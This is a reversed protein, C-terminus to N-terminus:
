AAKRADQGLAARYAKETDEACREWTFRAAREVGGACLGARWDDDEIVRRMADRWGELDDPDILHAQGAAVEAVAGATSAIVAGGCAMMEVTPMGFGEYRTPFVLARAGNYVAAVDEEAVYGAHIVGRSRATGELYARVDASKWGWGGVLVLPCRERVGAPLDGYARMLAMLNKRPEVTGVHLLYRPPLGLAKLREAVAQRGLPVFAPRAGMYTRTVRHAAIGLTRIIEQRGTESIAVVHDAREIARPFAAAFDAVRDAPHWEPHLLVSLDHVTVVTP